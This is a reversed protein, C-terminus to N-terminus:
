PRNKIQKNQFWLVFRTLMSYRMGSHGIHRSSLPFGHLERVHEPVLGPDGHLQAGPGDNRATISYLSFYDEAILNHSVLSGPVNFALLGVAISIAFM